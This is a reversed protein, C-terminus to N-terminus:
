PSMRAVAAVACPPTIERGAAGTGVHRHTAHQLAAGTREPQNLHRAAVDRDFSAGDDVQTQTRSDAFEVAVRSMPKPAEILASVGLWTAPPPTVPVAPRLRATACVM